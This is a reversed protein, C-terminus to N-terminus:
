KDGKGTDGLRSDLIAAVARAAPDDPDIALVAEVAEHIESLAATIARMNRPAQEMFAANAHRSGIVDARYVEPHTRPTDDPLGQNRAVAYIATDRAPVLYRGDPNGFALLREPHNLLDQIYAQRDEECLDSSSIREEAEKRTYRHETHGLVICVGKGPIRTRLELDGMDTNGGWYWDGPSIAATLATMAAIRAATPTTTASTPM